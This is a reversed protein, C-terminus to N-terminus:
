VAEAVKTKAFHPSMYRQLNFYTLEDGTKLKLLKSLDSDPNIKRGNEKDQLANKRIYANIERTVETRAMETGDEKGLFAALEPSILTPKVFGSPSRNGSKRRRKASVKNAAKLERTARKELQRFETKLSALLNTVQQIKAFADSFATALGDDSGEVADVAPETAVTATASVETSATATKAKKAKPESKAPAPAPTSTETKSVKSVKVNKAPAPAATKADTSPTTPKTAKPM